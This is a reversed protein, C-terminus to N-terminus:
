KKNLKKWFASWTDYTLMWLYSPFDPITLLHGAVAQSWFCQKDQWVVWFHGGTVVYPVESGWPYLRPQWHHSQVRDLHLWSRDSGLVSGGGNYVQWVFSVSGFSFDTFATHSLSVSIVCRFLVRLYKCPKMRPATSCYLLVRSGRSHLTHNLTQTAMWLM